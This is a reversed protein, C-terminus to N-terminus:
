PYFRVNVQRCSGNFGDFIVWEPLRAAIHATMSAVCFRPL